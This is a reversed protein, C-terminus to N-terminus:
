QRNAPQRQAAAAPGVREPDDTGYVIADQLRTTTANTGNPFDSANGVYLAVADPGNSLLGFEGPDFTLSAGPVGPNGMVFYGNADTSYGDLDFAAYSQKGTGTGGEFFVVVLGDLPTNGAGGDYLEVFEAADAGPTDADVENIM